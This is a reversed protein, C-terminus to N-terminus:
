GQRLQIRRMEKYSIGWYARNATFVDDGGGKGGLHRLYNTVHISM